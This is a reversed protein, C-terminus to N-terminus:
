TNKNINVLTNEISWVVLGFEVSMTTVMYNSKSSNRIQAKLIIMKGIQEFLFFILLRGVVAPACAKCFCLSPSEATHSYTLLDSTRGSGTTTWLKAPNRPPALVAAQDWKSLCLSESPPSRVPGSGPSLPPHQDTCRCVPAEPIPGPEDPHRSTYTACRPWHTSSFLTQKRRLRRRATAAGQM